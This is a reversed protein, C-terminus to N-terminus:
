QLIQTFFDSTLRLDKDMGQAFWVGFWQLTGFKPLKEERIIIQPFKLFIEGKKEDIKSLTM